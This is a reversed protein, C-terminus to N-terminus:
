TNGPTSMLGAYSMLDQPNNMNFKGWPTSTFNGIPGRLPNNNVANGGSAGGALGAPGAGGGTFGPYGYYSQMFSANANPVTGAMSAVQWPFMAGQLAQQETAQAQGFNQAQQQLGYQQQQGTTQFQQQWAQQAAALAQQQQFEQLQNALQTQGLQYNYSNQQVQPQLSALGLQYQWNPSTNLSGLLSLLDNNM